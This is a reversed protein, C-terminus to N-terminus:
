PGNVDTVELEAPGDGDASALGVEGPAALTWTEVAARRGRVRLEGVLKLDALSRASLRERVERTLLVQVGAEATLAELRSAVNTTDGIVTYELRDRGGVNGSMVSGAHLGIGIRFGDGLREGRLWENFGELGDVIERAAQVARDAHDDAPLPAGFVAMVGDGMISVLAGGHRLIAASVVDHYHNLADIVQEPALDEAFGTFGRLDAFMVTADLRTGGLRLDDDTRALVDSVVRADVFRSFRERLVRREVAAALLAGNVVVLLSVALALVPAVVPLILGAGAFLGYAAVLYAAGIAPALPWRRGLLAPVLGLALVLAFDFWGPTDELPAGRLFTDIANAQIEPGSMLGGGAATSHVDQLAPDTPGVVVIRGRFADAPVEGDRVAAFPYTRLTGPPGRFDIWAPAAPHRGTAQVAITPLGERELGVRRFVGGPDPTLLASGARAGLERLTENGGLTAPEGHDTATAALVIRGRARGVADLLARDEAERTRATFEVDYVITKAGATRLADIVRAHESRPFPWNTSDDIAVVVVRSSPGYDSRLSFRADVTWNEPRRLAGSAGLVGTIAALLACLAFTRRM